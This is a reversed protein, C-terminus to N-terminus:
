KKVEKGILLIGDQFITYPINVQDLGKTLEKLEKKANTDVRITGDIHKKYPVKLQDFGTCLANMKTQLMIDM